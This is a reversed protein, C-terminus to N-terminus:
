KIVKGKINSRICKSCAGVGAFLELIRLKTMKYRRKKRKKKSIVIM